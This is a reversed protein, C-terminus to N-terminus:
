RAPGPRVIVTSDVTRSGEGGVLYATDGILAVGADAVAYPLSGARSTAGTLPDFRWIAATPGGQTRGGLLYITGGLTVAAAESLPVPLQGAVSPRGSAPDLRQSTDVAHGGRQGGFV